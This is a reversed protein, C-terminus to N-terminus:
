IKFLLKTDIMMTILNIFKIIVIIPVVLKIIIHKCASTDCIMSLYNLYEAILHKFWVLWMWQRMLKYTKHLLIQMVKLM